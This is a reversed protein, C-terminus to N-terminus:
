WRNMGQLSATERIERLNGFKRDNPIFIFAHDSGERNSGAIAAPAWWGGSVYNCTCAWVVFEQKWHPQREKLFCLHGQEGLLLPQSSSFGLPIISGQSLTWTGSYCVIGRVATCVWGSPGWSARGPAPAQALVEPMGAWRGGGAAPNKLQRSFLDWLSKGGKDSIVTDADSQMALTTPTEGDASSPLPSPGPNVPGHACAVAARTNTWQRRRSHAFHRRPIWSTWRRLLFPSFSLLASLFPSAQLAKRCGEQSLGQSCWCSNWVEGVSGMLVLKGQPCAKPRSSAAPGM